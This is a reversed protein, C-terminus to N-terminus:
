LAGILKPRVFWLLAADGPELEKWRSVDAAFALLGSTPVDFNRSAGGALLAAAEEIGPSHAVVLVSDLSSPLARLADIWADGDSGYLESELRIAGKFKMARAALEATEKARVATSSVIGDPVADLKALSKGMLAADDRGRAALAREFDSQEPVGPEAKAHRM